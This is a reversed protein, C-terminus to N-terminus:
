YRLVDPGRVGAAAGICYGGHVEGMEGPGGDVGEIFCGGDDDGDGGDFLVAVVEGDVRIGEEEAFDDAAGFGGGRLLGEVGRELPEAVGVVVDIVGAGEGGGGAEIEVKEAVEGFVEEGVAEGAEEEQVSVAAVDRGGFLGDELEAM